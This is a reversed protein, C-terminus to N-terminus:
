REWQSLEKINLRRFTEWSRRIYKSIKNQSIMGRLARITRPDSPYGSGFDIGIERKINEVEHDRTVKAVISAASVIPYRRDARHESIIRIKKKMRALIDEAFREQDVDVADIYAEDANSLSIVEAFVQCEIENMTMGKRMLDIEWPHVIKIHAEAHRLIQISLSERRKPTLLKSDKVGLSEIQRLDETVVSAVVLPGIVSGRGAEDVGCVRM